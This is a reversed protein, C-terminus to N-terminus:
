QKAKEPEGLRQRANAANVGDPAHSLYSELQKRGGPVDGKRLHMIGDLYELDPFEHGVDVRLGAAIDKEVADTLNLRLDAVAAFYYARPFADPDLAIAKGASETAESWQRAALHLEALEVYAPAFKDDAAIAQTYSNLAAASDKQAAELMGLSLWATAFKRYAATAKEMAVIAAALKLKAAADLGADYDKRANKAVEMDTVSMVASPQSGIPQLVLEGNEKGAKLLSDLAKTQARYGELSARISCTRMESTKAFGKENTAGPHGLNFSFHGKADAYTAESPHGACIREVRVLRGPAAGGPLVVSGYVVLDNVPAPPSIIGGLALGHDGLQAYSFTPILALFIVSELPRM